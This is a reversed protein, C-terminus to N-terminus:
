RVFKSSQWIGLDASRTQDKNIKITSMSICAPDSIQCIAQAYAQPTHAPLIVFESSQWIDLDASITRDKNIKIQTICM